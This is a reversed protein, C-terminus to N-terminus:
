APKGFPCRRETILARALDALLRQGLAQRQKWSWDGTAPVLSEGTHIRLVFELLQRQHHPYKGKAANLFWAEFNNVYLFDYLANVHLEFVQNGYSSRSYSSFCTNYAQAIAKTSARSIM